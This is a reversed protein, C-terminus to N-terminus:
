EWSHLEIKNIQARMTETQCIPRITLGVIISAFQHTNNISNEEMRQATYPFTHLVFQASFLLFDPIPLTV